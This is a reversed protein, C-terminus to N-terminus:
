PSISAALSAPLATSGLLIARSQPGCNFLLDLLSLNAVFGCRPHLQPYAPHTFDQWQLRIGAEALLPRDLYDVSGGRGSLYTDAGAKQCLDIIMETKKGSPSLSSSLVIPTRIELADLFLRLLAGNLDVLKDWQEKYIAFLPEAYAAFFPARRYATEITRITQRRWKDDDAIRVEGVSRSMGERRVPVVLWQAGDATKIRNRNQFGQKEYQVHDAMVFLDAAAIKHILGMWPLYSPQHAALIM